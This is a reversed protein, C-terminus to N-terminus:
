FKPRNALHALAAACFRLLTDDDLPWRRCLADDVVNIM